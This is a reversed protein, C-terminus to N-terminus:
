VVGLLKVQNKPTSNYPPAIHQEELAPQQHQFAAATRHPILNVRVTVVDANAPLIRLIM